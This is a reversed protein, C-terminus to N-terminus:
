WSQSTTSSIFLYGVSCFDWAQDKQASLNRCALISLNNGSPNLFVRYSVRGKPHRLHGLYVDQFACHM